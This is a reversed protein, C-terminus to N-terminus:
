FGTASLTFPPNLNGMYGIGMCFSTSTSSRGADVPIACSSYVKNAVKMDLLRYTMM